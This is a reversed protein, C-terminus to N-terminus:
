ALQNQLFDILEPVPHTVVDEAFKVADLADELMHELIAQVRAEM